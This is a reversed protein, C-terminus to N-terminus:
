YGASGQRNIVCFQRRSAEPSSTGVPVDLSALRERGGMRLDGKKKLQFMMIAGRTLGLNCSARNRSARMMEDQVHMSM